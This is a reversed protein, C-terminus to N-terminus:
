ASAPCPPLARSSLAASLPPIVFAWSAHLCMHALPRDRRDVALRPESCAAGGGTCRSSGGAVSDQLGSTGHVGGGCTDLWLLRSLRHVRCEPSQLLMPRDLLQRSPARIAPEKIHCAPNGPALTQNTVGGGHQWNTLCLAVPQLPVPTPRLPAAAAGARSCLPAAGAAGLQAAPQCRIRLLRKASRKRALGPAGWCDAQQSREKGAAGATPM